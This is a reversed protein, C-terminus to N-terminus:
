AEKAAKMEEALGASDIKKPELVKKAEEDAAKKAKVATLSM